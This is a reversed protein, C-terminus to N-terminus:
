QGSKRGARRIVEHHNATGAVSAHTLTGCLAGVAATVAMDLAGLLHRRMAGSAGPVNRLGPLDFEGTSSPRSMLQPMVIAAVFIGTTALAAALPSTSLSASISLEDRAHAGLAEHAILQHSRSRRSRWRNRASARTKLRRDQADVVPSNPIRRHTSSYTNLRPSGRPTLRHM